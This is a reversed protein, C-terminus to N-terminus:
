HAAAEIDHKHFLMAGLLDVSVILQGISISEKRETWATYDFVAVAEDV